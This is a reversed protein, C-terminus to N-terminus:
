ALGAPTQSRLWFLKDWLSEQNKRATTWYGANATTLAADLTRIDQSAAFDATSIVNVVDTPTFRRDTVTIGNGYASGLMDINPM